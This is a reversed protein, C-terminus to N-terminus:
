RAPQLEVVFSDVETEYGTVRRAPMEGEYRSSYTTYNMMGRWGKGKRKLEFTIPQAMCHASAAPPLEDCMCSSPEVSCRPACSFCGFPREETQWGDFHVVDGEDYIVGELAILAQPITLMTHGKPDTRVTCPRLKYEKSIKCLYEGPSISSKAPAESLLVPDYRAFAAASATAPGKAAAPASGDDAPADAGLTDARLEAELARKAEANRQMAEVIEEAAAEADAKARAQEQALIQAAGAEIGAEEYEKMREEGSKTRDCGASLLLALAVALPAKLASRRYLLPTRM